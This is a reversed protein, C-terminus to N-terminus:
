LAVCFIQRRGDQEASFFLWLKGDYWFLYPNAIRTLGEFTLPPEDLWRWHRLDDSSAARLGEGDGVLIWWRRQYRVCFPRGILDTESRLLPNELDRSWVLFDTSLALGVAARDNRGVYFLWFLHDRELLCPDQLGAQEWPEGGHVTLIPNGDFRQWRNWDSSFALGIASTVSDAAHGRYALWFMGRRLKPLPEDLDNHRLVWAAAVGAADFQDKAGKDLVVKPHQWTHLDDSVAAVIRQHQGDAVTYFLWWAGEYRVVCPFDVFFHASPEAPQSPLAVPKPVVQRSRWLWQPLTTEAAM